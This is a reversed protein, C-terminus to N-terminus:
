IHFHSRGLFIEKFLEEVRVDSPTSITEELYMPYIFVKGRRYFNVYSKYNFHVKVYREM